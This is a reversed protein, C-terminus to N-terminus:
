STRPKFSERPRLKRIITEKEWAVTEPVEEEESLRETTATTEREIVEVDERM